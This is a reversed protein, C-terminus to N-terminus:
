GLPKPCCRGSVPSTLLRPRAWRWQGPGASSQRHMDICVNTAIRYLWSRLSSRGEFEGRQALGAADDGSRRGRGRLGLRADPLLLRDARARFPELDVQALDRVAMATSALLPSKLVAEAM